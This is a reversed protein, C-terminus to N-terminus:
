DFVGPEGGGGEGEEGVGYGGVYVRRGTGVFRRQDRLEEGFDFSLAVCFSSGDRLFNCAFIYIPIPVGRSCSLSIISELAATLAGDVACDCVCGVGVCDPHFGFEWVVRLGNFEGAAHVGGVRM